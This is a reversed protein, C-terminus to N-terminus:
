NSVSAKAMSTQSCVACNTKVIGCVKAYVNSNAWPSGGQNFFPKAGDFKGEPGVEYLRKTQGGMLASEKIDRTIWSEFDGYKLLEAQSFAFQVCLMQLTFFIYRKM